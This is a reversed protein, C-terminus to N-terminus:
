QMNALHLLEVFTTVWELGKILAKYGLKQALFNFGFYFTKKNNHSGCQDFHKSTEEGQFCKICVSAEQKTLKKTSM